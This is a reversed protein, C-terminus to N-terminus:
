SFLGNNRFIKELNSAINSLYDRYNLAFLYNKNVSDIKSLYYDENLANINRIADDANAFTIIGEIDFFDGINSCGWYIPITKLLFMEMIKETFYGRRSTNEIVIGYQADGFLEMKAITCTDLRERFGANIWFRSPNRIESARQHIEFRLQHGYTKLLQGRVHSFIFKKETPFLANYQNESLWTSGFPQFVANPCQNLVKDSWTLILSFLRHNAVIWDHHGFYENPEQHCFINIRSLQETSTPRCDLFFSFDIKSLSEFRQRVETESFFNVFLKM